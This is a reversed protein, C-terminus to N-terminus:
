KKKSAFFYGEEKFRVPVTANMNIQATSALMMPNYIQGQENELPKDQEDTLIKLPEYEALLENKSRLAYNEYAHKGWAFWAACGILALLAIASVTVVPIFWHEITAAFQSRLAKNAAATQSRGVMKAQNVQGSPDSAYVTPFVIEVDINGLVDYGKIDIRYDLKQYAPDIGFLQFFQESTVARTTEDELLQKLETPTKSLLPSGYDFRASIANPDIAKFGGAAFTLLNFTAKAGDAYVTQDVSLDFSGVNDNASTKVTFRDDKNLAAATQERKYHAPIELFEAYDNAANQKAYVSAFENRWAETRAAKLYDFYRVHVPAVNTFLSEDSIETNTYTDDFSWSVVGDVYENYSYFLNFKNTYSNYVLDSLRAKESKFFTFAYKYKHANLNNIDYYQIDSKDEGLTVIGSAAEKGQQTVTIMQSFTSKDTGGSEQGFSTVNSTNYSWLRISNDNLDRYQVYLRKAQNDNTMSKMAFALDFTPGGPIVQGDKLLILTSGVPTKANLLNIGIYLRDNISLCDVLSIEDFVKDKVQKPIQIMRTGGTEISTILLDVNSNKSPYISVIVPIRKNTGNLDFNGAAHYAHLPVAFHQRSAADVTQTRVDVAFYVATAADYDSVVIGKSLDNADVASMQGYIGNLDIQQVVRFMEDFVTLTSTSVLQQASQPDYAVKNNLRIVNKGVIITKGNTDNVTPMTPEAPQQDPGSAPQQANQRVVQGGAHQKPTLSSFGVVGIIGMAGLSAALLM